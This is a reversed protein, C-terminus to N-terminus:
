SPMGYYARDAASLGGTPVPWAADTDQTAGGSLSVTGTSGSVHLTSYAAVITAATCNVVWVHDPAGTVMGTYNISSPSTCNVYIMTQPEAAPGGTADGHMNTPGTTLDVDYLLTTGGAYGDMGIPTHSGGGGVTQHRLACRAIISTRIGAHHIPYKPWATSGVPRNLEIDIGEWYVQDPDILVGTGLSGSAPLTYTLLPRPGDPDAAYFALFPGPGIIETYTGADVLIDVRYNPTIFPAGEATRTATQLAAAATVAASITSYARSPGVRLTGILRGAPRIAQIIPDAIEPRQDWHIANGRGTAAVVPLLSM